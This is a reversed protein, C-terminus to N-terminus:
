SGPVVLFVAFGGAPPYPKEQQETNETRQLMIPSGVIGEPVYHQMRNVPSQNLLVAIWTRRKASDTLPTNNWAPRSFIFFSVMVGKIGAM